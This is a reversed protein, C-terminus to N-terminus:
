LSVGSNNVDCIVRIILGLVLINIIIVNAFFVSM